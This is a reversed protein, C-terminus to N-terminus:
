SYRIATGYGQYVTLTEISEGSLFGIRTYTNSVTVFRVGIVADAGQERATAELGSYAETLSQAQDGWIMWSLAIDRGTMPSDTTTMHM